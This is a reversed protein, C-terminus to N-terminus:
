RKIFVVCKWILGKQADSSAAIRRKCKFHFCIRSSQATYAFFQFSFFEIVWPIMFTTTHIMMFRRIRVRSCIGFYKGLLRHHPFPFDFTPDMCFWRLFNRADNGCRQILGNSRSASVFSTMASLTICIMLLSFVSLNKKMELRKRWYAISSSIATILSVCLWFALGHFIVALIYESVCGGSCLVTIVSQGALLKLM